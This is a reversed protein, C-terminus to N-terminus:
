IGDLANKENKIKSFTLILRKTEKIEYRDDALTVEVLISVQHNVTVSAV